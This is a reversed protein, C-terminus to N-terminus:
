AFSYNSSWRRNRRYRRWGDWSLYVACVAAAIIGVLNGAAMSAILAALMGVIGFPHVVWREAVPAHANKALSENLRRLSGM